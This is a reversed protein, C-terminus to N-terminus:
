AAAATAPVQARAAVQNASALVARRAASRTRRRRALLLLLLASRGDIGEPIDKWLLLHNLALSVWLARALRPSRSLRAM